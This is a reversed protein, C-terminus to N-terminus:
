NHGSSKSKAPTHGADLCDMAHVPVVIQTSGAVSAMRGCAGEKGLFSGREGLGEDATRHLGLSLSSADSTSSMSSGKDCARALGRVTGGNVAAPSAVGSAHSPEGRVWFVLADQIRKCSSM